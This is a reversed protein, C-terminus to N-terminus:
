SKRKGHWTPKPPGVGVFCERTEGCVVCRWRETPKGIFPTGGGDNRWEQQHWAAGRSPPSPPTM